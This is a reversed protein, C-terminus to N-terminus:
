LSDYDIVGRKNRNGFMEEREKRKRESACHHCIGTNWSEPCRTSVCYDKIPLEKGCDKCIFTTPLKINVTIQVEEVSFEYDDPNQYKCPTDEWFWEVDKEAEERTNYIKANGFDRSLGINRTYAFDYTGTGFTSSKHEVIVYGVSSNPTKKKPKYNMWKDRFEMDAIAKKTITYRCKGDKCNHPIIYDDGVFLDYVRPHYKGQRWYDKTIENYEEETLGHPADKFLKLLNYLDQSIM